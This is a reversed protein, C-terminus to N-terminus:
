KSFFLYAVYGVFIFVFLLITQTIQENIIFLQYASVTLIGSIVFMTIGAANVKYAILFALFVFLLFMGVLWWQGGFFTVATGAQGFTEALAM